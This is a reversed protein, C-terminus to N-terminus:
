LEFRYSGLAVLEAVLVLVVARGCFPEAVLAAACLRRWCGSACCREFHGPDVVLVLLEAVVEFHCATLGKKGCHRARSRILGHGNTAFIAGPFLYFSTVELQFLM